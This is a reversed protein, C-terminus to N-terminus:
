RALCSRICSILIPVALTMRSVSADLIWRRESRAIEGAGVRLWASVCIRLYASVCGFLATIMRAAEFTYGLFFFINLASTTVTAGTKAGAAAAVPLVAAAIAGLQWIM